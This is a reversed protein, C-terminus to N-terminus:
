VKRGKKIGAYYKFYSKPFKEYGKVIISDITKVPGGKLRLNHAEISANEKRINSLRKPKAFANGEKTKLLQKIETLTKEVKNTAEFPLIVKPSM